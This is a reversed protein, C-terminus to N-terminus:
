HTLIMTNTVIKGYSRHYNKENTLSLIVFFYVSFFLIFNVKWEKLAHITRIVFLSWRVATQPHGVKCKVAHIWKTPYTKLFFLGWLLHIPKLDRKMRQLSQDLRDYHENLWKVVDKWVILCVEVTIGFHAKFIENEIGTFPTGVYRNDVPRDMFTRAIHRFHSVDVETSHEELAQRNM